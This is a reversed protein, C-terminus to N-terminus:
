NNLPFAATVFTYDRVEEGRRVRITFMEGPGKASLLGAERADKGNVSLVVDGVALGVKQAPSDKSIITIVPYDASRVTGDPAFTPTGTWGIGTYSRSRGPITLGGDSVVAGAPMNVGATSPEPETRQAQSCAVPILAFTVALFLARYSMDIEKLLHRTTNEFNVM